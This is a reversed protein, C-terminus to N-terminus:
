PQCPLRRWLERGRDIGVGAGACGHELVSQDVADFGPVGGAQGLQVLAQLGGPEDFAAGALGFGHAPDLRAALGVARHDFADAALEHQPQGGLGLGHRTPDDLVLDALLEVGDLLVGPAAGLALDHLLQLFLDDVRQQRAGKGFAAVGHDPDVRLRLPQHHARAAHLLGVRHDRAQHFQKLGCAAAQLEAQHLRRHRRGGGHGGPQGLLFPRGAEADVTFAFQLLRVAFLGGHAIGAVRQVDVFHAFVHALALHGGLQRQRPGAAHAEHQAFRQRQLLDLQQIHHQLPRTGIGTGCAM